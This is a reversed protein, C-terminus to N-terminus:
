FNFTYYEDCEGCINTECNKAWIEEFNGNFANGLGPKTPNKLLSLDERCMPVRGDLLITFDREIHWCPNRQVPSLDTVQLKPLAGCFDDYKQIIINKTKKEAWRYFKESEDESGKSRIFQLYTNNPFYKLFLEAISDNRTDTNTFSLIWTPLRDTYLERPPASACPDQSLNSLTEETWGLGSTEILLSLDKYSLVSQIIDTIQPHLSPEGWLSISLVAEKSFADIKQLITKFDSLSMYQDKYYKSIDQQRYPCFKNDCHAPCDGSIQISYFSPVTRLLKRNNSIIEEANTSDRLGAEILNKLILYNRKCDAALCLRYDRLDVPSIETEIDFANIDRAMISFLSDRWVLKNKEEEGAKELLGALIAPFSPVFVEPAFGEPWGDSYSYEAAYKLHREAIRGALDADLLPCDAWAYYFFDPKKEAAIGAMKALLGAQSMKEQLIIVETAHPFSAAASQAMAFATDGANKGKGGALPPLPWSAEEKLEGAYLVCLAKM